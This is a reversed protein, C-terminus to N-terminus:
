KGKLNRIFNIEINNNYSKISFAEPYEFWFFHYSFLVDWKENLNKQIGLEFDFKKYKLLSSWQTGSEFTAIFPGHKDISPVNSYPLRTILGVVPFSLSMYATEIKKSNYEIRLKPNLTFENLVSPMDFGWTALYNIYFFDRLQAGAYLNFNENSISRVGLLYDTSLSIHFEPHILPVIEHHYDSNKDYYNNNVERKGINKPKAIGGHINLLINFITKKKKLKEYGVGLELLNGKYLLPSNQKDLTRSHSYGISYIIKKKIISDNQSFAINSISCVLISLLVNLFIIKM